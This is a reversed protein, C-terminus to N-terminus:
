MIIKLARILAIMIFLPYLIHTIKYLKNCKEHVATHVGELLYLLAFLLAFVLLGVDM